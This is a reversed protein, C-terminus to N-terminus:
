HLNDKGLIWEPFSNFLLFFLSQDVGSWNFAKKHLLLVIEGTEPDIVKIEAENLYGGKYEVYPEVVLFDGIKKQLDHLGVMDIMESVNPVKDNDMLKKEFIM